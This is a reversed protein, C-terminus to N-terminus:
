KFIQYVKFGLKSIKYLIPKNIKEYRGYSVFQGGFKKKYERVGYPLGPKGAGGFDFKNFGNEKGWLFVKWPILDNPYKQYYKQYSGAYWDYITDKYCLTYMTGIINGKYIALFIKFIDAGLTDFAVEFFSKEPLPLKARDYVEKLIEYSPAIDSRNESVKFITGEKEARRIENKRKSNVEEWLEQESKTLDVIIDLHEQLLYGKDALIYTLDSTDFLNRFQTYIAKNSIINDLEILLSHYVESNEDKVLPGGWIISRKSFYGKLGIGESIIVALLSGIIINEDEVILLVPEYNNVIQFFEFAKFSQFFNSNPHTFVFEELKTKLNETLNSLTLIQM